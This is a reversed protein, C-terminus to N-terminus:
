GGSLQKVLIHKAFQGVYRPITAVSKYGLRTYLRATQDSLSEILADSCGREFASEELSSLVKAGLGQGRLHEAVWLYHVFLRSFETRGSGGAVLVIDEHVLCAIPQPNGGVAQTRGFEIVGASIKALDDSSAHEVVQLSRM